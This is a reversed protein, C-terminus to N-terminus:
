VEEIMEVTTSEFPLFENLDYEFIKDKLNRFLEKKEESNKFKEEIIKRRYFDAGQHAMSKLIENLTSENIKGISMHTPCFSFMIPEEDDLSFEVNLAMSIEDWDVIKM